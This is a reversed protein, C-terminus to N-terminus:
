SAPKARVVLVASNARNLIERSIDGLVFTRLGVSLASGTVVLDYGGARIERLIGELVSGRRLQVEVKVGMAELLEKEHRLNLGLESHSNLLSEATVKMRGLPAYIAPLEPMVHLLAVSAKAGKAIQGTLRVANDIYEKGGSCVLIRSITTSQGAVSLVPPTIEKIIKYSKSSMWFLGRSDKRVAGIIVLDYPTERTRKTIEEVAKGSKSILEAQIKKDALLAQSRKLSDLLSDSQGKSESIGFLTVEASCGVAITAGLKVASEAQPSGDSCILIKM